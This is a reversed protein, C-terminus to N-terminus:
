SKAKPRYAGSTEDWELAGLDRPGGGSANAARNRVDDQARAAAEMARAVERSVWRYGTYLGAGAAVLLLLQPMAAERDSPPETLARLAVM